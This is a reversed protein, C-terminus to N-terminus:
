ASIPPNTGAKTRLFAMEPEKKLLEKFIL